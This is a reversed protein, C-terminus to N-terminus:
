RNRNVANDYFGQFGSDDGYKTGTIGDNYGNKLYSNTDMSNTYYGSRKGYGTTAGFGTGYNTTGYLNTANSSTGDANVNNLNNTNPVADNYYTGYGGDWASYDDNLARGLNNQTKTGSCGTFLMCACILMAALVYVRSKM